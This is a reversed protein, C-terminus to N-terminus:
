KGICFREFIRDLIDEQIVEGIVEGMTEQASRIDMNVLEFPTGSRIGDAAASLAAVGALILHLHRLNPIIASECALSPALAVTEIMEKLDDIGQDHLASISVRPMWRWAEPPPDSIGGGILDRKNEVWIVAKDRIRDHIERDEETLPAGAATMFLVLDAGEIRSVTREIGIQEIPDLSPRLGATDTLLIPIGRIVLSEEIFDRTTGPIPTVIARERELLRNMLSSKGVNPKGAVVVKLGDRLIHGADYRAALDQLPLLAERTLRELFAADDIGEGVEEPFDIAAETEALLERVVARISVIRDRLGGQVQATASHLARETRANILDIVAEAQTLDIRGNMFARRTFEGPAALAAGQRLVLDLVARLAAPGSHIHVEVVDERTYSRPAKMLVLLAEDLVGGSEPIVVHGYYFRHSEMHFAQRTPEDGARRFVTRAIDPAQPGSIRVIGIGGIGVPTAIAAITSSDM